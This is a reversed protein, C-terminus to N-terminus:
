NQNAALASLLTRRSISCPASVMFANAQLSPVLMGLHRLDDSTQCTSVVVDVQFPPHQWSQCSSSLLVKATPHLYHLLFHLDLNDCVIAVLSAGWASSVMGWSVSAFVVEVVKVFNRHADGVV